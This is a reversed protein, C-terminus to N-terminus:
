LIASMDIKVSVGNALLFEALYASDQGTAGTILAIKNAM